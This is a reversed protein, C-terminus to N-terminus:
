FRMSRRTSEYSSKCADYGAQWGDNYDQDARSRTLDKNYRYYPHGAATYGSDCGAAYGEQFARPMGPAVEQVRQMSTVCGSFAVMALAAAFLKKKM